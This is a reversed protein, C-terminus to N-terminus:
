PTVFVQTPTQLIGYVVIHTRANKVAVTEGVRADKQLLGVDTVQVTGVQTILAVEAGSKANPHAEVMDWTLTEGAQLPYLLRWDSPNFSSSNLIVGRPASALNREEWYIDGASLPEKLNMKRALVAVEGTVSVVCRATVQQQLQGNSWIALPATVQASLPSFAVAGALRIDYQTGSPVSVDKALTPCSVTADAQTALKSLAALEATPAMAGVQTVWAARVAEEAVRTLESAPVVSAATRVIISSGPAILQIAKEDIQAQRLRVLISGVVLKREQGVLAAKGVVLADLRAKLHEDDTDIAAIAGLAIDTGSVTAPSYLTVIAKYPHPPTALESGEQGLAQGMRGIGEITVNVESQATAIRLGFCGICILCMLWSLMFLGPRSGNRAAATVRLVYRRVRSDFLIVGSM